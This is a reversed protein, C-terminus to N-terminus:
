TPARIVYRQWLLICGSTRIAERDMVHVIEYCDRLSWLVRVRVVCHVWDRRESDGEFSFGFYRAPCPTPLRELRVRPSEGYRSHSSLDDTDCTSQIFFRYAAEIAAESGM